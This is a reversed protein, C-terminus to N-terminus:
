EINFSIQPKRLYYYLINIHKLKKTLTDKVNNKTKEIKLLPTKNHVQCNLERSM